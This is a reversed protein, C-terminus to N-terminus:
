SRCRLGERFAARIAQYRGADDRGARLRCSLGVAAAIARRRTPSEWRRLYRGRSRWLAAQMESPMQGTSAGGVHTIRAAPALLCTWGRAHLARALDIEESYMGYGEDFGGVDDYAARRIALAAGLAYDVAYPLKGNGPGLRGNLSSAYLRAPVPWLDFLLNVLGPFRYGASQISGDTNLLLPAAMGIHPALEFVRTLEGLSHPELITDANLIILPDGSASRAGANCGAAYGRNESMRILRTGPAVALADDLGPATSACDVVLVEVPDPFSSREREISALCEALLRPTNWHVIIISLLGVPNRRASHDQNHCGLDRCNVM